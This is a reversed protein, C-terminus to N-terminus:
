YFSISCGKCFHFRDFPNVRIYPSHAKTTKHIKCECTPRRHLLPKSPKFFSLLRIAPDISSLRPRSGRLYNSCPSQCRSSSDVCSFFPSVQFRVPIPALRSQVAAFPLASRNSFISLEIPLYSFARVAVVRHCLQVYSSIPPPNSKCALHSDIAFPHICISPLCICFNSSPLNFGQACLNVRCVKLTRRM